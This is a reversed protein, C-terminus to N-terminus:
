AKKRKKLAERRKSLAIAVRQKPPYGASALEKINAEVDARSSGERLPM